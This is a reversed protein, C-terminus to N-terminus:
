EIEFLRAGGSGNLRSARVLKLVEKARSEDVFCGLFVNEGSGAATRFALYRGPISERIGKCRNPTIQSFESRNNFRTTLTEADKSKFTGVKIIFRGESDAAAAAPPSSVTSPAVRADDSLSPNAFSSAADHSRAGNAVSPAKEPYKVIGQEIQAIKQIQMGAIMGVAFAAAVLILLLHSRQVSRSEQKESVSDAATEYSQWGGQKGIRHSFDINQMLNRIFIPCGRFIKNFFNKLFSPSFPPRVSRDALKQLDYCRNGSLEVRQLRRLEVPKSFQGFSPDAFVLHYVLLEGTGEAGYGTFDPPLDANQDIPLPTDITQDDAIRCPNFNRSEISVPANTEAAQSEDVGVERMFRQTFLIKVVERDKTEIEDGCDRHAAVPQGFQEM